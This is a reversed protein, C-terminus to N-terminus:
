LWVRLGYCCVNQMLVAWWWVTRDTNSSQSCGVICQLELGLIFHYYYIPIYYLCILIFHVFHFNIFNRKRQQFLIEPHFFSNELHTSICGVTGDKINVTAKCQECEWGTKARNSSFAGQLLSKEVVEERQLIFSCPHLPFCTRPQNLLLVCDVTYRQSWFDLRKALKTSTPRYFITHLQNRGVSLLLSM